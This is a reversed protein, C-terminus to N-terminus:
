WCGTTRNKCFVLAQDLDFKNYDNVVKTCVGCYVLSAWIVRILGLHIYATNFFKEGNLMKSCSARARFIKLGPVAARGSGGGRVGIIKGSIWCAFRITIM